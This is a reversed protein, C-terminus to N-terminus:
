VVMFCAMVRLLDLAFERKQMSPNQNMANGYLNVDVFTLLHEGCKKAM